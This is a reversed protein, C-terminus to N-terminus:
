TCHHLSSGLPQYWYSLNPGIQLALWNIYLQGNLLKGTKSRMSHDKILEEVDAIIEAYRRHAKKAMAEVASAGHDPDLVDTPQSYLV